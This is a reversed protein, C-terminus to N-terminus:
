HSGPECRVGQPVAKEPYVVLLEDATRTISLFRDATAWAPILSNGDLRCIAFSSSLALITLQHSAMIGRVKKGAKNDVKPIAWCKM